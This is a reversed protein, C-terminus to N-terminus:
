TARDLRLLTVASAQARAVLTDVEIYEERTHPKGGVPGVGCLTPAGQAAAFGSDACAGTFEGDVPFGITEAAGRYCDFLATSVDTPVLPLFEGVIELSARTGEITGTEIIREIAAMAAARDSPTRYRLDIEGVARPATTNVSLGGRVLGVNVTTGAEFDTLAHLAIIKHAIEGIASQGEQLNAGSHAAKGIIEFRMFVGGKRATVVNGTPRGPESNLVAVAGRAESEIVPRSFPSGLEEDGTYLAVLPRSLGGLRNFAALVFANMVLGAKMDAIGPGYARAGEIRFPRSAAEGTPFVTDRHGMMLLRGGGEEGGVSARIANGYQESPVVSASIGEDEFFRIFREGVADVGVKDHSNSDINVVEELLEVMRDHRGALWEVTEKERHLLSPMEFDRASIMTGAETGSASVVLM